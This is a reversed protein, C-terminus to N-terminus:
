SVDELSKKNPKQKKASGQRANPSSTSTPSFNALQMPNVDVSLKWNASLNSKSSLELLPFDFSDTLNFTEEYHAKEQTTWNSDAGNLKFDKKMEDYEEGSMGQPITFHQISQPFAFNFGHFLEFPHMSSGHPWDLYSLNENRPTGRLDNKTLEFNTVFETYRNIDDFKRGEFVYVPKILSPFRSNEPSQHDSMSTNHVVNNISSQKDPLITQQQQMVQYKNILCQLFPQNNFNNNHNQIFPPQRHQSWIPFNNVLVMQTSNYSGSTKVNMHANAAMQSHLYYSAFSQQNMNSGYDNGNAKLHSQQQNLQNQFM